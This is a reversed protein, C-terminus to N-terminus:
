LGPHACNPTSAVGMHPNHVSTIGTNTSRLDPSEFKPKTLHKNRSNPEPHTGQYVNMSTEDTRQSETPTHEKFAETHESTPASTSGSVEGILSTLTDYNLTEIQLVSLTTIRSLARHLALASTIMHGGENPLISSLTELRPQGGPSGSTVMIPARNEVTSPLIAISPSDKKSSEQFPKELLFQRCFRLIQLFNLPRLNWSIRIIQNFYLLNSPRKPSM